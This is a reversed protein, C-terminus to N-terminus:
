SARRGGVCRAAETLVASRGGLAALAGLARDCLADRHRELAPRVPALARTAARIADATANQRLAERVTQLDAAGLTREAEALVSTRKGARLDAGVPKGTEAEDGFTGLLDDEIQFAVGLPDGFARLAREDEASAGAAAAGLLLPGTTTYASTKLTHMVSVDVARSSLDLEQGVIVDTLMAALHALARAIRESPLPARALETLAMASALDGSLVASSEAHHPSRSRSLMVHAAPGGRREEDQDMWDDHILLYTQLLEVAAAFSRADDLTGGLSVTAAGVLAARVRKGGRLTISEAAELMTRVDDGLGDRRAREQSFAEALRPPIETKAWRLCDDFTM